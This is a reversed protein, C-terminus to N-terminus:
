RRRDIRSGSKQTRSAVAYRRSRVMLGMESLPECRLLWPNWSADQFAGPGVPAGNRSRGARGAQASRGEARSAERRVREDRSTGSTSAGAETGQAERRRWPGAELIERAGIQRQAVQFSVM